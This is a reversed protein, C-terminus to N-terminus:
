HYAYEFCITFYTKGERTADVHDILDNENYYYKFTFHNAIVNCQDEFYAYKEQIRGKKDYKIKTSFYEIHGRVEGYEENRADIAGKNFDKKEILRNSADYTYYTINEENKPDNVYMFDKILNHNADYEYVTKHSYVITSDRNFESYHYTSFKMKDFDTWEYTYIT